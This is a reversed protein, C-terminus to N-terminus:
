SKHYSFVGFINEYRKYSIKYSLPSFHEKGLDEMVNQMMHNLANNIGHIDKFNLIRTDNLMQFVFFM